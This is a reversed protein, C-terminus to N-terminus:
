EYHIFYLSCENQTTSRNNEATQLYQKDCAECKDNTEFPCKPKEKLFM